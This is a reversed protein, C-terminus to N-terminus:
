QKIRPVRYLLVVGIVFFVLLFLISYRMSETAQNVVAFISMGIVIGIKEAVDYFSFYSATDLSGDPIMKSYTSRSLSQISGMVLGVAGATLYFQMPTIVFYGGICILVWLINIVILVPLNGYKSSLKSAVYAGLIAVLQILLISVILGTTAGDEGWQVEKEGFYTAVLM